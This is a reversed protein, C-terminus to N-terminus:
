TLKETVRGCTPEDAKGVERIPQDGPAVVAILM